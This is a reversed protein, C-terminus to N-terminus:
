SETALPPVPAELKAGPNLKIPFPVLARALPSMLSLPVTAPIPAVDLETLKLM